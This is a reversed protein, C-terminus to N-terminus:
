NSFLELQQVNSNDEKKQQNYGKNILQNIFDRSGRVIYKGENDVDKDKEEFTKECNDQMEKFIDELENTLKNLQGQINLTTNQLATLSQYLSGKGANTTINKILADQAAENVSLMKILRRINNIEQRIKNNIYPHEVLYKEDFYYDSLRETIETAEARATDNIEDINLILTPSDLEEHEDDFVPNDTKIFLDDLANTIDNNVNENNANDNTSLIMKNSDNDYDLTIM